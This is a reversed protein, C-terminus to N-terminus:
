LEKEDLDFLKGLRQRQQKGSMKSFDETYISNAILEVLEKESIADEIANIIVESLEDEINLQEQAWNKSYASSLLVQRTGPATLIDQGIKSMVADKNKIKNMATEPTDAGLFELAEARLDKSM